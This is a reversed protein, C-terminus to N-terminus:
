HRLWQKAQAHYGLLWARPLQSKKKKKESGEQGILETSEGLLSSPLWHSHVMPIPVMTIRVLGKAAMATLDQKEARVPVTYRRM